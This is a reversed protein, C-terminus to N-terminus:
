FDNAEDFLSLQPAPGTSKWMRNQPPGSRSGHRLYVARQSAAFGRRARIATIKARAERARAVHDVVPAPYHVGLRVGAAIMLLPPAMWPDHIHDSSLSALEPVWRRIFIGDPDQDRSQKVPNYIRLTNIGTTGSQMQIQSWHIGPEYDTFLRALVLGTQRWDLWLHYSAFATLMARMRFNIWGTAKLSRMCADIFPFGTRGEAFAALLPDDPSTARAGEFAPHFSHFEIAPESELKQIFHCHWHLRSLFADIARTEIRERPRNPHAAAAREARAAAVIERLSLTGYAIHPSLRSCADAASLPSSMRKQYCAGRGALFSGLLALGHSRGGAQRGPCPDDALGLESARPEDRRAPVPARLISIPEPLPPTGIESEWRGAWGDRDVRGRFVGFCRPEHWVIGHRRCWAAVMRDRAYTWGNGTEQHSWLTTIGVSRQIRELVDVIPAIRVHLPCGLRDLACALDSLSDGIFDFHRGTMEPTEWLDPEFVYLPLVPQGTSAAGALAAHDATRLDRKFWVVHVMLDRYVYVSPPLLGATM